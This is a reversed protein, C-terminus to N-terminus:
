GPRPRLARSRGLPELGLPQMSDRAAVREIDRLHESGGSPRNRRRDRVGDDGAGSTQRRLCARKEIEHGESWASELGLDGLREQEISCATQVLARLAAYEDQRISERRKPV